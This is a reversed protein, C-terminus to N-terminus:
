GQRHGSENHTSIIREWARIRDAKRKSLAILGEEDEVSELLVEVEQGEQVESPNEFQDLPIVGESKYGVDVIVDNNLVNVIKGKLIKDVEFDQVSEKYLSGIDTDGIQLVSDLQLDLEEPKSTSSKLSPTQPWSLVM